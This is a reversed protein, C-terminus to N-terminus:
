AAVGVKLSEMYVDLDLRDFIIKQNKGHTTHPIARVDALGRLAHRGIKTYVAAQKVDMWRDEKASDILLVPAPKTQKFRRQLSM